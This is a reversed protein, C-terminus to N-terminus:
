NIKDKGCYVCSETQISFEEADKAFSGDTYKFPGYILGCKRDSIFSNRCNLNCAMFSKRGKPKYIKM